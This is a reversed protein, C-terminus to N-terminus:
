VAFAKALPFTIKWIIYNVIGNFFTSMDSFDLAMDAYYTGGNIPIDGAKATNENRNKDYHVYGTVKLGKPVKKVNEYEPLTSETYKSFTTIGTYVAFTKKAGSNAPYNYGSFTLETKWYGGEDILTKELYLVDYADSFLGEPINITMNALWITHNDKNLNVSIEHSGPTGLRSESEESITFFGLNRPLIGNGTANPNWYALDKSVEEGELVIDYGGNVYSTIKQNNTRLNKCYVMIKQIEGGDHTIYFFGMDFEFDELKIATFEAGEGTAVASLNDVNIPITIKETTSTISYGFAAISMSGILMLMSLIIALLKKTTKM